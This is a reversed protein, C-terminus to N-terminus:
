VGVGTVIVESLSKTDADLGITVFGGVEAPASKLMYGVSTVELTVKDTSVTISFTGDYNTATGVRTGKIKVTANPIPSGDKSDTIKGKITKTQATATHALLSLVVLVLPLLTRMHSLKPEILSAEILILINM